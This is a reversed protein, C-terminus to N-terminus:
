ETNRIHWRGVKNITAAHDAKRMVSKPFAVRIKQPRAYLSQKSFTHQLLNTLPSSHLKGIDRTRQRDAREQAPARIDLRPLALIEGLRLHRQIRVLALHRQSRVFEEAALCTGAAGFGFTAATAAVSRAGEAARRANVKAATASGPSAVVAAAESPSPILM